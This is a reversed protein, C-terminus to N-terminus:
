PSAVRVRSDAGSREKQDILEKPLVDAQDCVNKSLAGEQNTVSLNATTQTRVQKISVSITEPFM